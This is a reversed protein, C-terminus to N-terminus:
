DIASPGILFRENEEREDTRERTPFGSRNEIWFRFVLARVIIHGEIPEEPTSSM